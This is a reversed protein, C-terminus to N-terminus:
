IEHAELINLSFDKRMTKETWLHNKGDGGWIHKGTLLTEL